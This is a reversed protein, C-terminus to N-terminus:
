MWVCVSVVMQTNGCIPTGRTIMWKNMPNEWLFAMWRSNPYGWPTMSVGWPELSRPENLIVGDDWWGMMGDSRPQVPNMWMWKRGPCTLLDCGSESNYLDRICIYIYMDICSFKWSYNTNEIWRVCFLVHLSFGRQRLLHCCHSSSKWDVDKPHPLWSLCWLSPTSYQMVIEFSRYRGWFFNWNYFLSM